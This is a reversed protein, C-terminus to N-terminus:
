LDNSCSNFQAGCGTPMGGMMGTDVICMQCAGGVMVPMGACAENACATTCVGANMAGDGCTCDALAVYLDYSPNTSGPTFMPDEDCWPEPPNDTIYESCGPNKDYCAAGGGAGGMGGTTSTAATTSSTTGGTGGTGGAGGVNGTGDTVTCAAGVALTGAAALVCMLTRMKM